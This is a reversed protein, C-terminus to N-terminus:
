EGPAPITSAVRSNARLRVQLLRTEQTPDEGQVKHLTIRFLQKQALGSTSAHPNTWTVTRSPNAPSLGATTHDTTGDNITVTFVNDPFPSVTSVDVEGWATFELEYIDEDVWAPLFYVEVDPDGLDPVAYGPALESLDFLVQRSAVLAYNAGELFDQATEAAAVVGATLSEPPLLPNTATRSM